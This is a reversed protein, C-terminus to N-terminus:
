EVLLQKLGSLRKYGLLYTIVHVCYEDEIINQMTNNSLFISHSPSIIENFMLENSRPLILCICQMDM